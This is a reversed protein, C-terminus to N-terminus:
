SSGTTATLVPLKFYYWAILSVALFFGCAGELIAFVTTDLDPATQDTIIISFALILALSFLIIIALMHRTM